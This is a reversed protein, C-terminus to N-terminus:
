AMGAGITQRVPISAPDFGDLCFVNVGFHDPTV